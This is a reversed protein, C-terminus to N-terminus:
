VGAGRQQERDGSAHYGRGGRGGDGHEPGHDPVRVAPEFGTERNGYDKNKDTRNKDKGNGETKGSRGDKREKGDEQEKRRENQPQTPRQKAAAFALRPPGVGQPLKDM